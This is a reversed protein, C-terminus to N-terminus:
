ECKAGRDDRQAGLPPHFAPSKATTASATSAQKGDGHFGRAARGPRPERPAPDPACRAQTWLERADQARPAEPLGEVRSTGQGGGGEPRAGLWGPVGAQSAWAGAGSGAAATFAPRNGQLVGGKEGTLRPATGSGLGLRLCFSKTVCVTHKGLENKWPARVNRLDLPTFPM